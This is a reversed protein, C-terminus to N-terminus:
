SAGVSRRRMMMWAILLLCAAGVAAPFLVTTWSHTELALIVLVNRLAALGYFGPPESHPDHWIKRVTPGFGALDVLTLIVVASLPDTTV